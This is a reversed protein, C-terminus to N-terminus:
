RDLISRPRGQKEGCRGAPQHSKISSRNLRVFSDLRLSDLRPIRQFKRADASFNRRRSLAVGWRLVVFVFLLVFCRDLRWPSSAVCRAPVVSEVRGQSSHRLWDLSILISFAWRDVRQQISGMNKVPVCSSCFLFHLLSGLSYSVSPMAASVVDVDPRRELLCGGCCSRRKGAPWFFLVSSRGVLKWVVLIHHTRLWLL